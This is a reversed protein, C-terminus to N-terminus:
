SGMRVFRGEGTKSRVLASHEISLDRLKTRLMAIERLNM